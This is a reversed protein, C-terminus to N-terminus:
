KIWTKFGKRMKERYREANILDISSPNKPALTSKLRIDLPTNINYLVCACLIIQKADLLITYYYPGYIWKSADNEDIDYHAMEHDIFDQNEIERFKLYEAKETLTMRKYKEEIRKGMEITKNVMEKNCPPISYAKGLDTASASISFFVISLFILVRM